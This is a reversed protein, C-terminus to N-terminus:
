KKFLHGAANDIFRQGEEIYELVTKEHKWRGHRMISIFNAGKRSTETAFGRRLSHASVSNADELKCRIAINKIIFNIGDSSISKESLQDHKNITRFVFGTNLKSKERWTKLASVACLTKNGYPIACIQGQGGQDGKSRPILIEVGEEVFRLHEWQMTALESRRFAGFFGMQLLANTRWGALTNLNKVYSCMISLQDISIAPAKQKPRGHTNQIGILTKRVLAHETPDPFGQYTHWHKIATLRRSLTRSNLITAFEHLYQIVTSVSSPLLGGWTIFHQIDQRYARRTNNSTAAHIYQNLTNNKIELKQLTDLSKEDTDDMQKLHM